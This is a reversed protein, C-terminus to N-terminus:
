KAPLMDQLQRKFEQGVEHTTTPGSGQKDFYKAVGERDTARQLTETLLRAVPGDPDALQTMLEADREAVVRRMIEDISKAVDTETDDTDAGKGTMLSAARALAGRNAPVPCASIELLEVETFVRIRKKVGDTLNFERMEWEHAIFGVSFAKARKRPDPHSYLRWWEEGKASENFWTTGLVETKAIQLDLWNGIQMPTGDFSAHQHAPLMVNNEMFVKLWKRYAEPEVIEEYRDIDGTSVAADVTREAEDVGRVVMEREFYDGQSPEIDRFRPDLLREDEHGVIYKNTKM